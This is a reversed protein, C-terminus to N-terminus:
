GGLAHAIVLGIGVGALAAAVGISVTEMVTRALPRRGVRARGVGLCILLLMTIATSVWRAESVPMLAFPVIPIAASVFDAILMWLAHALPSQMTQPTAPATMAYAVGQLVGPKSRILDTVLATQTEALGAARLRDGIRAVVADPRQAIESALRASFTRAEDVETEIELYTGAMMSVAAACAGSAGAVLVTMNDNTTAAVGLVLGFISVTGDEMGFVIDGASAALSTKVREFITPHAM